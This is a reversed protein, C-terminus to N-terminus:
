VTCPTYEMQIMPILTIADSRWLVECKIQLRLNQCCSQASPPTTQRFHCHFHSTIWSLCSSSGGHGCNGRFLLQTPIHLAKLWCAVPGGAANTVLLVAPSVYAYCIICPFSCVNNNKRVPHKTRTKEHLLIWDIKISIKWGVKM